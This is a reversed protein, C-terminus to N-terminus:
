EELFALRVFLPRHDGGGSRGWVTAALARWDDDDYFVYDLRALPPAFRVWGTHTPASPFTYGPWRGVEAYADTFITTVAAYDATMPTINFDGVVLTPATPEDATAGELVHAIDASRVGVDFGPVMFPHVPHVNYVVVERGDVDLLVRQHGLQVPLPAQFFRDEIIPFRSLVGQGRTGAAQPHLARYPYDNPFASAFVEGSAFSVEQLAVIDADAEAVIALTDAFAAADGSRNLLNYTLVTIERNNAPADQPGNTLMPANTWVAVIFPLALVASPLWLRTVLALPLLVLVPLLMLHLLNNIVAVYNLNEGEAWRLLLFLTLSLGYAGVSARFANWVTRGM